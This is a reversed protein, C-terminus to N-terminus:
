DGLKVIGGGRFLGRDCRNEEMCGILQTIVLSASNVVGDADMRGAKLRMIIEDKSGGVRYCVLAFLADTLLELVMPLLSVQVIGSGVADVGRRVVINTMRNKAVKNPPTPRIRYQSNYTWTASSYPYSYKKWLGM